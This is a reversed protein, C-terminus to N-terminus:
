ARIVSSLLFGIAAADASTAAQEEWIGVSFVKIVRSVGEIPESM